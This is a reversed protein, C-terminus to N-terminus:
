VHISCQSPVSILKDKCCCLLIHWKVCVCLTHLWLYNTFSFNAFGGFQDCSKMVKVHEHPIGRPASHDMFKKLDYDLYEFVLFLKRDCHLVELLSSLLIFCAETSYCVITEM